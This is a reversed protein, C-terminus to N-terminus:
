AIKKDNNGNNNKYQEMRFNAYAQTIDDDIKQRVPPPLSYFANINITFPWTSATADNATAPATTEYKHEKDEGGTDAGCFLWAESVNLANAIIKLTKQRPIVEKEWGQVNQPSTGIKNALETQNLGLKKRAYIIRDGITKM